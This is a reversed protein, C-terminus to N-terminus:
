SHEAIKNRDKGMKRELKIREKEDKKEKKIAKKQARTLSPFEGDPGRLVLGPHVINLTVLALVMPLADLALPFAENTLMPNSSNIGPGFEIVRFIIRIQQM